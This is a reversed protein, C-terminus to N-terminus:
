EVLKKEKKIISNVRLIMSMVTVDVKEGQMPLLRGREEVMNGFFPMLTEAFFQCVRMRNTRPTNIPLVYKLLRHIRREHQQGNQSM